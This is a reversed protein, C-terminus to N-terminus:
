VHDRSQFAISTAIEISAGAPVGGNGGSGSQTETAAVNFMDSENIDLTFSM